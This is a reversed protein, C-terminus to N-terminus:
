NLFSKQINNKATARRKTNFTFYTELWTKQQLIIVRIVTKSNWGEKVLLKLHRYHISFRFNDSLHGKLINHPNYDKPKISLMKETSSIKNPIKNQTCFPFRKTKKWNWRSIELWCWRLILNPRMTLGLLETWAWKHTLNFTRKRYLTVWQGDM